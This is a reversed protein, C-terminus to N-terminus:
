LVGHSLIRCLLESLSLGLCLCDPERYFGMHSYGAYYSQCPGDWAYATLTGISGWTLTDQM